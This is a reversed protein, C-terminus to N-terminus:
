PVKIRAIEVLCRGVRGHDLLQTRRCFQRFFLIEPLPLRLKVLGIAGDLGLFVGPMQGIPAGQADDGGGIGVAADGIQEVVHGLPEIELPAELLQDPDLALREVIKGFADRHEGAVPPQAQVIGSEGPHPFERRLCQGLARMDFGDRRQAPRQVAVMRGPLRQARDHGGDVAAFRDLVLELAAVAGHDVAM